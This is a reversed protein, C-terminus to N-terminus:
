KPFDLQEWHIKSNIIDNNMIYGPSLITRSKNGPRFLAPFYSVKSGVNTQNNNMHQIVQLAIKVEKVRHGMDERMDCTNVEIGQESIWFSHRISVRLGDLISFLSECNLCTSVWLVCTATM